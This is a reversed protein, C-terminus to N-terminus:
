SLRFRCEVSVVGRAADVIVSDCLAHVIQLGRGRPSEVSPMEVSPQPVGNTHGSVVLTLEADRADISVIFEDGDGYEVANTVLESTVLEVDVLRDPSMMEEVTSRVFSRAARISGTVAPFVQRQGVVFDGTVSDTVSYTVPDTTSPHRTSRLAPREGARM